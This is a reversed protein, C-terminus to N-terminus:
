TLTVITNKKEEIVTSTKLKSQTNCELKKM